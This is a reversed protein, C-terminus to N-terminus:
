AIPARGAQVDDVVDQIQGLDFGPAEFQFRYREGKFRHHLVDRAQKASRRGRFFDSEIEVRTGCSRGCISAPSGVRIPCIMELRVLLASFNVSLPPILMSTVNLAMVGSRGRTSIATRSLPIPM